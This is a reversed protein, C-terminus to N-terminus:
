SGEGDAGGKDTDPSSLALFESDLARVARYYFLRARRKRIGHLECWREIDSGTITRRGM